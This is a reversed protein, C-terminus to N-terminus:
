RSGLARRETSYEALLFASRRLVSRQGSNQRGALEAVFRGILADLPAIGAQRIASNTLGVDLYADLRPHLQDWGAAILEGPDLLPRRRVAAAL